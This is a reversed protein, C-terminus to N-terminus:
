KIITGANEGALSKTISGAELKFVKVPMKIDRCIAIASGDMVGLNKALAEEYSISEYKIANKNKSPDDSYVGDVNKALLILGANIEAARLAAASDTTFFPNGTGGTFLVVTKESLLKRAREADVLECVKDIPFANMVVASVGADNLASKLVLGNMVTALMGVNDAAPRDMDGSSRGRWFNGGGLVIGLETGSRVLGAIEGALEGVFAESIGAGVGGSLAEGSLKLLARKNANGDM